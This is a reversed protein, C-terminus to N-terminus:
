WEDHDKPQRRRANRWFTKAVVCSQDRCAAEAGEKMDDAQITRGSIANTKFLPFFDTSVATARVRETEDGTNLFVGGSVFAAIQEFSQSQTQWDAIDPVSM